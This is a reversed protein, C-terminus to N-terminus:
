VAKRRMRKMARWAVVLWAIGCIGAFAFWQMAYGLNQNFDVSPQPWDRVLGDNPNSAQTQTLVAPLLVLGAARAYADLELNQAHPVKGDALPLSSPLQGSQGQGMSWIEFLRPVHTALEGTVTQVGTEASPIVLEGQGPMVRPLWGRLVLVARNTSADLLLPTAVWYGPFGDHNRNELLVSLDPLWTGSAQAPRWATLENVPTNPTLVLAPQARGAQTAALVARREDARRLQWQGFSTLMVVALGLLLLAAVTLKTSHPRAM